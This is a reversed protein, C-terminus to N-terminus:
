LCGGLKKTPRLLVAMILGVVGFAACVLFAIQYSLTLDFIYGTMVM